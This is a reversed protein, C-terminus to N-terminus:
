TKGTDFQNLAPATVRPNPAARMALAPSACASVVPASPPDDDDDFGFALSEPVDSPGPADDGLSPFAVAVGPAFVELSTASPLPLVEDVGDVRADPAEPEPM